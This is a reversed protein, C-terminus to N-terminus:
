GRIPKKNPIALFSTIPKQGKDKVKEAPVKKSGPGKKAPGQKSSKSIGGGKGKEESGESSSQNTM